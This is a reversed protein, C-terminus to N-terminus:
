GNPAGIRGEAEKQKLAYLQLVAASLFAVSLYWNFVSVTVIPGSVVVFLIQSDTAGYITHLRTKLDGYKEDV